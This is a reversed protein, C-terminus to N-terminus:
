RESRGGSSPMRTPTVTVKLPGSPTSMSISGRAIHMALNCGLADTAPIPVTGAEDKYLALCFLSGSNVARDPSDIAAGELVLVFSFSEGFRFPEFYENLAGRNAMTVTHPLTGSVNGQVSQSSAPAGGTFDVIRAELPQTAPNGPNFQFHLSGRSGNFEHTDVTIRYATPAACLGAQMMLLGISLLGLNRM